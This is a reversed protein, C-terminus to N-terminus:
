SSFVELKPIPPVQSHPLEASQQNHLILQIFLFNSVATTKSKWIGRNWAWGCNFCHTRWAMSRATWSSTCGTTSRDMLIAMVVQSCITLFSKASSESSDRMRTAACWMIRFRVAPIAIIVQRSGKSILIAVLRFFLKAVANRTHKHNGLFPQNLCIQSTLMRVFCPLVSNKMGNLYKWLHELNCPKTMHRLAWNCLQGNRGIQGPLGNLDNCSQYNFNVIICFTANLYM